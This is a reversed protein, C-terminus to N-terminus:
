AETTDPAHEMEMLKMPKLREVMNEFEHAELTLLGSRRGDVFLQFTVREATRAQVMASYTVWKM